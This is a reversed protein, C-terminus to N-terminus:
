PGNSGSNEVSSADQSGHASAVGTMTSKARFCGIVGPTFALAIATWKPTYTIILTTTAAHDAARCIIKLGHPCRFHGVNRSVHLVM